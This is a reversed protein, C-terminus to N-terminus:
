IALSSSMSSSGSAARMIALSACAAIIIVLLYFGVTKYESKFFGTETEVTFFLQLTRLLVSLPLAVCFFLVIKKYKM